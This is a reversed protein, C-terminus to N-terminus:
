AALCGKQCLEEGSNAFPKECAVTADCRHLRSTEEGFRSSTSYLDLM